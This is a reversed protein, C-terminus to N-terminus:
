PLLFIHEGQHLGNSLKDRFLSGSTPWIIGFFMDYNKKVFWFVGYNTYRSSIQVGSKCQGKFYLYLMIIKEHGKTELPTIKIAITSM